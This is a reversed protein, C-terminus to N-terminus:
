TETLVIEWELRLYFDGGLFFPLLESINCALSVDAWVSALLVALGQFWDGFVEPHM